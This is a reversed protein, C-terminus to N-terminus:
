ASAKNSLYERQRQRAVERLHEPLSELILYNRSRAATEVIEYELRRGLEQGVLPAVAVWRERFDAPEPPLNPAVTLVRLRSHAEVVTERSREVNELAEAVQAVAMSAQELAADRDAIAQQFAAQAEEIRTAAALEEQLREIYEQSDAAEQKALATEGLLAEHEEEMAALRDALVRLRQSTLAQRETVAALKAEIESREV